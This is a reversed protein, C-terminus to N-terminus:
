ARRPDLRGTVVEPVARTPIPQGTFAGPGRPGRCQDRYGNTFSSSSNIEFRIVTTFRARRPDARPTAQSDAPHPSLPLLLPCIWDDGSALLAAWATELLM